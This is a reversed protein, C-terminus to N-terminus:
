ATANANGDEVDGNTEERIVARSRLYMLESIIYGTILQFVLLGIAVAFREKSLFYASFFLCTTSSRSIIQLWNQYFRSTKKM